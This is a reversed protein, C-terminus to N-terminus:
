GVCKIIDPKSGKKRGEAGYSFLEYPHEAEEPNREYKLKNGWADKFENKKLCINM